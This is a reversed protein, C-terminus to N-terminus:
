LINDKGINYVLDSLWTQTKTARQITAWWAAKDMPNKLCYQLPNGNEEELPNEQGPSQVMEQTEQMAPPNNVWQALLSTRKEIYIDM